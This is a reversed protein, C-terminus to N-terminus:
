VMSKSWFNTVIEWNERTHQVGGGGAGPGLSMRRSEIARVVTPSSFFKFQLFTERHM